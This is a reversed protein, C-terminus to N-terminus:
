FEILFSQWDKRLDKLTRFWIGLKLENYAFHTENSKLVWIIATSKMRMQFTQLSRGRCLKTGRIVDCAWRWTCFQFSGLTSSKGEFRPMQLNPIDFQHWQLNKQTWNLSQHCPHFKKSSSICNNCQSSHKRIHTRLLLLCLFLNAAYAVRASRGANPTLKRELYTSSFVSNHERFQVLFDFCCLPCFSLSFTPLM